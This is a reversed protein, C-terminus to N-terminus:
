LAPHPLGSERLGQIFVCHGGTDVKHMLFMFNYLILIFDFKQDFGSCSLLLFFGFHSFKTTESLM